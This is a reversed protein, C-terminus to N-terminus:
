ESWEKTVTALDQNIVQLIAPIQSILMILVAAVAAIVYSRPLIELSFTFIDEASTSMADFFLHSIYKGLPIGAVIGIISILINELSIMFSLMRNGLGVARMTAMERTRQTVNVMVGNFIIAAGLATGMILMIGIMAWFFGMQEDLMQRTDETLEISAVQPINYIRKLLYDSPEGQFKVMIASAAGFDRQLAQVERFPMYARGGVYSWVYGALRVDTEGIVGTLPELRIIDGIEAGLKDKYSDPLLIGDPQVDIKLGDATIINLMQSNQEIGEISTDVKKDKFRIRYPIDIVPEAATIGELHSILSVNSAASEGQLHIIADYQQVINYQRNLMESVADVFSMAVLVLIIASAIGSAMFLSRRFNRFINRVPMKIFYPFPRLLFTLAKMIYRNGVSPAPPRMAEAPQIRITSWAPMLGALLPILLGTAMGGLIAGWHVGTVFIPINLADIYMETLGNAWLHGAIAGILSGITGVILAFGLYHLMVTKQSYGMARILGIQIRQSEVLRNLLVYITLSAMTLFLLPFLFALMAFSEMDQRLIQVVPLNKRETMYATRIGQVIDIRRTQLEVKDDKSTMRKIYHSELISRVKSLIAAHDMDPAVTFTIENVTGEMDFLKEAENLPMFIIGFTRPTVMPEQASKVVWIHEPSMVIGRIRFSSKVGENELRLWNGPRLNYYDAFHREVLIERGYTRSFYNGAEIQVLNVPPMQNEPLSIVRGTVKEGTEGGMDIFLDKVIRGYAEVGAIENMDKVANQGIGDVSIWYDAMNLRDYFANYSMNLNLYAEYCTIFISVGLFIIFAVAGYQIKNKWVDRLLKLQIRPLRPLIVM